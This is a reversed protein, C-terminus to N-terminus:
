QDKATRSYPNRSRGADTFLVGANQLFSRQAVSHSIGPWQSGVEFASGELVDKVEQVKDGYFEAVDQMGKWNKMARREGKSYRECAASMNQEVAFVNEDSPAAWLEECHACVASGTSLDTEFCKLAITKHGFRTIYAGQCCEGPAGKHLFPVKWSEISLTSKQYLTVPHLGQVDAVLKRDWELGLM